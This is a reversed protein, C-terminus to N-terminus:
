VPGPSNDSCILTPWIVGSGGAASAAALSPLNCRAANQAPSLSIHLCQIYQAGLAAPSM